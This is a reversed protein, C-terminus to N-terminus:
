LSYQAERRKGVISKPLASKPSDEAVLQRKNVKQQHEASYHKHHEFTWQM